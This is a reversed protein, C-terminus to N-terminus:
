NIDIIATDGVKLSSNAVFGATVEFVYNASAQPTYSAIEGGQPAPAHQWIDVITDDKIWIIDLDYKMDKMWFSHTGTEPFIFLMGLDAPLPDTGSLGQARQLPTQAVAALFEKGGITVTAFDFESKQISREPLLAIFLSGSFFITVTLVLIITLLKNSM